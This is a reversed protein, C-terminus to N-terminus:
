FHHPHTLFYIPCRIRSYLSLLIGLPALTYAVVRTAYISYASTWTSWGGFHVTTVLSLLALYGTLRHYKWVLKAKQGGGFAVGGFWVSGAGLLFQVLLLSGTILGFTQIGDAHQVLSPLHVCPIGPQSTLLVM